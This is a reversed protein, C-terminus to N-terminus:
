FGNTMFLLGLPQATHRLSYQWQRPIWAESSFSDLYQLSQHRLKTKPTLSLLVGEVGYVCVDAWGDLGNTVTQPPWHLQPSHMTPYTAHSVYFRVRIIILWMSRFDLQLSNAWHISNGKIATKEWLSILNSWGATTRTKNTSSISPRTQQRCQKNNRQTKNECPVTFSPM